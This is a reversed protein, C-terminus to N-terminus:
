FFTEATSDNIFNIENKANDLEQENIPIKEVSLVKQLDFLEEFILDKDRVNRNFFLHINEYNKLIVQDSVDYLSKIACAVMEHERYYAATAYTAVSTNSTHFRFYSKTDITFAIKGDRIVHLYFIWDGCIRMSLWDEDNLLLSGVPKKFVAGSVNPITNKIALATEVENSSDNIYSSRWKKDDITGVYNLFAEPNEIGETNVFGYQCYSLKIQPDSFAPLVKELFNLECYDDSEAIWCYESSANQIGKTWQHYVGGSNKENFILRTIDKYKEAYEKLIERSHDNSCDDMLIVEINKYTQNYISDLRQRLYKEHNYNPVIVSVKISDRMRAANSLMQNDSLIQELVIRNKSKQKNKRNEKYVQLYKVAVNAIDFEKSKLEALTKCHEYFERNTVFSAIKSALIDVPVTWNHLDFIEGAFEGNISLMKSVDGVNSSIVPIHCLLAEILSLPASESKYYSPILCVDSIAYYDCPTSCFGLLHIYDPTGETLLQQYIEGDGILLLHIDHGTMTRAIKIAEVAQLWGKEPIARSAICATFSDESIGLEAKNVAHTKPVKMGNPIKTFHKESFIGHKQFPIINKDAVYTWHDVGNGMREFITQLTKNPFNEYMGHSTGVHLIQKHLDVDTNLIQAFFSQIAQHHTHVVDIHYKKLILAMEDARQTIVVPISPDLMKRVRLESECSRFSHVIVSYGMEKLQNALRIPMIEGGGYSFAVISIMINMHPESRIIEEIAYTKIFDDLFERSNILINTRVNEYNSKIKGLPVQYNVRLKSMMQQHHILREKNCYQENGQSSDSAERQHTTSGTFAVAGEQILDLIFDRFDTDNTLAPITRLFDKSSFINRFLCAGREFKLDTDFIEAEEVLEFATKIYSKGVSFPAQKQQFQEGKGIRTPCFAAMVSENAFYILLEDIFNSDCTSGQPLLWIFESNGNNIGRSWMEGSLKEQADVKLIKIKQPYLNGYKKVVQLISRNEQCLLLIIEVKSHSQELINQLRKELEAPDSGSETIVSVQRNLLETGFEQMLRLSYQMLDQSAAGSWEDNVARREKKGWLIYHVFPNIYKEKRLDLNNNIYYANSFVANPDKGEFVGHFVYHIVTSTKVRGLFRLVPNKSNRWKWFISKTFKDQLDKNQFLYHEKDFLGSKHITLADKWKQIFLKIGKRRSTFLCWYFYAEAESTPKRDEYFGYKIYHYLPNINAARVDPNQDLYFKTNFLLSPNREERWGFKVFHKLPDIDAQRVDKYEKLYYFANFLHSKKLRRINEEESNCQVEEEVL